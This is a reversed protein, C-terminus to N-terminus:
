TLPTFGKLFLFTVFSGVLLAGAMIVARSVADLIHQSLNAQVTM